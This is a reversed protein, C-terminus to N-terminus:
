LKIQKYLLFFINYNIESECEYTNTNGKPQTKLTKVKFKNNTLTKTNM